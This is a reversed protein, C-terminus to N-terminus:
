ILVSINQIICKISQNNKCGVIVFKGTHFLIATGIEFKIFLGPFIESNYTVRKYIKQDVIKQLDISQDFSGTAIINDVKHSIVILPILNKLNDISENIGDFDQIKTINIHNSDKGSKFITYNYKYTFTIFNYHNKLLVKSEQLLEIVNDLSFKESKVSIKINRVRFMM